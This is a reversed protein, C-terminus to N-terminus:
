PLAGLGELPMLLFDPGEHVEVRDIGIDDLAVWYNAGGGIRHEGAWSNSSFSVNSDIAGILSTGALAPFKDAM